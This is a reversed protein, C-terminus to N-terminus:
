FDICAERAMERFADVAKADINSQAPSTDQRTRGIATASRGTGHASDRDRVKRKHTQADLGARCGSAAFRPATALFPFAALLVHVACRVAYLKSSSGFM